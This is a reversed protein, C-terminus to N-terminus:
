RLLLFVVWGCRKVSGAGEPIVWTLQTVLDFRLDRVAPIITDNDCVATFFERWRANKLMDREPQSADDVLKSIESYKIARTAMSAKQLWDLQVPLEVPALNALARKMEGFDLASALKDRYGTLVTRKEPASMTGLLDIVKEEPTDFQDLYRDLTDIKNTEDARQIVQTVAANGVMQQLHLM